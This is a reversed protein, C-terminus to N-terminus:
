ELAKKDDFPKKRQVVHDESDSMEIQDGEFDLAMIRHVKKISSRLFDWFFIMYLFSPMLLVLLGFELGKLFVVAVFVISLVANIAPLIFKKRPLFFEMEVFSGLADKKVKGKVYYNVREVSKVPLDLDFEDKGVRANRNIVSIALVDKSDLNTRIHKKAVRVKM